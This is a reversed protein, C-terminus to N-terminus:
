PMIVTDVLHIVGNSAPIDTKVVNAKGAKVKGADNFGLAPAPGDALPLDAGANRSERRSLLTKGM